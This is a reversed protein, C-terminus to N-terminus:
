GPAATVPVPQTRQQQLRLGLLLLMVGAIAIGQLSLFLATNGGWKLLAGCLVPSLAAGLMSLQSAGYYAGRADAPAIQDILQYEAPVLVLEALTFLLIAACMMPLSTSVQLIWLAPLLCLSAWLLWRALHGRLLWRSVPYQLLVVGLTNTLIMSTLYRQSLMPSCHDLLWLMLWASFRGYIMSHCFSVLTYCVLVHDQRLRSLTDVFRATSRVDADHQVPFRRLQRLVPLTLGVSIGGLWFPIAFQLGALQLGLLPGLSFMINSLLYGTAYVKPREETTIWRALMAKFSVLIVSMASDVSLILLASMAPHPSLTLAPLTLAILLVMSRLLRAPGMRDALHGGYLGILTASVGCLSLILGIWETSLHQRHLLLVFLPQTLARSLVLLAQCLLLLRIATM